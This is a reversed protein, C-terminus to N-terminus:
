MYPCLEGIDGLDKGAVPQYTRASNDAVLRATLPGLQVPIM